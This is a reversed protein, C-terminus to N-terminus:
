FTSENYTPPGTESSGGDLNDPLCTMLIVVWRAEGGGEATKNQGYSLGLDDVFNANPYGGGKKFEGQSRSKNWPTQNWGTRHKRIIPLESLDAGIPNGGGGKKPAV